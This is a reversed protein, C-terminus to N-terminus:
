HLLFLKRKKKSWSDNNKNELTVHKRTFTHWYQTNLVYSQRPWMYMSADRRRSGYTINNNKIMLQLLDSMYSQCRNIHTPEQVHSDLAISFQSRFYVPDRKRVQHHDSVFLFYNWRQIEHNFVSINCKYQYWNEINIM